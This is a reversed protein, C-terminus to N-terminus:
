KTSGRTIKRRITKDLIVAEHANQGFSATSWPPSCMQSSQSFRDRGMFFGLNWYREVDPTSRSYVLALISWFSGRTQEVHLEPQILWTVFRTFFSNSNSTLSPIGSRMDGSPTVSRAAKVNMFAAMPALWMAPSSSANKARASRSRSRSDRVRGTVPALIHIPAKLPFARYWPANEGAM